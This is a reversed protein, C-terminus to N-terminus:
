RHRRHSSQRALDHHNVEETSRAPPMKDDRSRFALSRFNPCAPPPIPIARESVVAKALPSVWSPSRAIRKTKQLFLDLLTVAM